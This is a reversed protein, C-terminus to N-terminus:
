SCGRCSRRRAEGRARSELEAVETSWARGAARAPRSGTRPPPRCNPSGPRSSALLGEGPTGILESLWDNFEMRGAETIAYVTRAPRSGDRVTEGVAICGTSRWAAVVTYLSGYNLKISEDKGRAKLMTSIEYPHM